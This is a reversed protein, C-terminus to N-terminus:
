LYKCFLALNVFVLSHNCISEEDMLFLHVSIGTHCMINLFEKEWLFPSPNHTSFHLVTIRAKTVPILFTLKQSYLSSFLASIREELILLLFSFQLQFLGESASQDNGMTTWSWSMVMHAKIGADDLGSRTKKVGSFYQYVIYVM